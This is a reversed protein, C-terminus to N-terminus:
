LCSGCGELGHWYVRLGKEYGFLVWVDREQDICDQLVCGFGGVTSPTPGSPGRLRPKQAVCDNMGNFEEEGVVVKRREEDLLKM